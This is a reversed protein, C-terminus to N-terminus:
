KALLSMLPSDIRPHTLSFLYFLPDVQICTHGRVKMTHSLSLCVSNRQKDQVVLVLMCVIIHCAYSSVMDSNTSTFSIIHVRMYM